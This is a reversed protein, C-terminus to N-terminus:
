GSIAAGCRTARTQECLAAENLETWRRTVARRMGPATAAGATGRSRKMSRAGGGGGAGWRGRRRGPTGATGWVFRRWPRAGAPTLVLLTEGSRSTLVRDFGQLMYLPPALLLLNM